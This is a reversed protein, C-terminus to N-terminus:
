RRRTGWACAEVFRKRDMRQGPWVFSAVASILSSVLVCAEAYSGGCAGQELAAAVALPREVFQELGM